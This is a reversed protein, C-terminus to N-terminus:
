WGPLGNRGIILCFQHCKKVRKAILHGWPGYGDFMGCFIMDDQCGFDEWVIFRDQSTGKKGGKSFVAALNESVGTVCCSSTLIM